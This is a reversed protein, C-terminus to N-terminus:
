RRDDLLAGLGVPQLGRRAIEDLVTPLAAVDTSQAGVHMLVIAGPGLADVIRAAVEEAALGKWGLSDVSWMVLYRYGARGVDDLVTDDHDGYPPRFWPRPDAGLARIATEAGRIQALREDTGLPATSTSTGTFSLHDQTHNIVTHGEAVVRRALSPYRDVWCGTLGFNATVGRASLLDLIEATAGADSGADFTLAVVARATSAERLVVAPAGDSPGTSTTTVSTAPGTTSPTSTTISPLTSTPDATTTCTGPGDATSRVESNRPSLLLVGGIVATGLLLLVIVHAWRPCRGGTGSQHSEM